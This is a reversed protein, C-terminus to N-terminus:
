PSTAGNRNKKLPSARLCNFLGSKEGAVLGITLFFADRTKVITSNKNDLVHKYNGHM